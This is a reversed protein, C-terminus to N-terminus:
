FFSWRYKLVEGERQYHLVVYVCDVDGPEEFGDEVHQLLLSFAVLNWLRVCDYRWPLMAVLVSNFWEFKYRCLYQLYGTTYPKTSCPNYNKGLIYFFFCRASSWGRLWSLKDDVCPLRIFVCLLQSNLPLQLSAAHSAIETCCCAPLRYLCHLYASFYHQTCTCNHTHAHITHTLFYM